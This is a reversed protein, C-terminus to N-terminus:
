HKLDCLESDRKVVVIVKDGSRLVLQVEPNVQLELQGQSDRCEVAIVLADFEVKFHELCELFTKDVCKAPVAIKRLYNGEHHTMLDTLVPTVGHNVVSSAFLGATLSIRSIIEEVGAIKLHTANNENLLECCTFIKPNLKELTLAALVTRADRDQPRLNDGKDALVIATKARKAGASELVEVKTYDQRLHFLPRTNTIRSIKAIDSPTEAVVVVGQSWVDPVAELERLIVEGMAEWGCIILHNKLDSIDLDKADMKRQFYATMSASITGVLVAFVVLGSISILVSVLKGGLTTPLEGIVEGSIFLFTTEWVQSLFQNASISHANEVSLQALTGCLILMVATFFLIGFGGFFQEFKKSVWGSQTLIIMVARTLRLLRLLRFIRFTRFLRFAPMVSLIDIWYNSFFIKKNPAVFYRVSLECIFIWTILDNVHLIRNLQEGEPILFEAFILTVNFLILVAIFFNFIAGNVFKQLNTKAKMSVYERHGVGLRRAREQTTIGKSRKHDGSKKKEKASM